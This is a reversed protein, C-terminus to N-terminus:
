GNEVLIHSQNIQFQYICLSYFIKLEMMNKAINKTYMHSCYSIAKIIRLRLDVHVAVFM